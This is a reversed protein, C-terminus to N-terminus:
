DVHKGLLKCSNDIVDYILEKQHAKFFLRRNKFLEIASFSCSEPLNTSTYRIYSSWGYEMPHKCLGHHIPNQHIYILVKKLYIQDNIIKRKFPREFLSGHREYRKNFAQAYSNFLNSFQQSPNLENKLNNKKVRDPNKKIYVLFHFHNPMLVWAYTDAVKPIYKEYLNFFHYYNDTENFINCSNIGRNYVHYFRGKLIKEIQQM